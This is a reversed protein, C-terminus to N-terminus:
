YFLPILPFLCIYERLCPLAYQFAPTDMSGSEAWVRLQFRLSTITETKGEPIQLSVTVNNQEATLGAQVATPSVLPLIAFLLFCLAIYKMWNKM